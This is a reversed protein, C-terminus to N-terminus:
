NLIEELKKELAENSLATDPQNKPPTPASSTQDGSVERTKSSTESVNPATILIFRLVSKTLNLANNLLIVKSPDLNIIPSALFSESHKKIQYSLKIKRPQGIPNKVEGGQKKILSLVEDLAEPSDLLLGLEYSLVKNDETM